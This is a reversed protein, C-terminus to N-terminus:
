QDPVSLTFKVRFGYTPDSVKQRERLTAPAPKETGVKEPLM